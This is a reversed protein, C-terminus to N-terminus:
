QGPKRVELEAISWWLKGPEVGYNRFRIYRAARGELALCIPIRKPDRIAAAFAEGEANGRWAETWEVRDQSTEIRLERPFDVNFEALYMLVSGIRQSAGLDIELEQMEGLQSGATWRTTFDGDALYRLEGQGRNAGVLNYTLREGDRLQPNASASAPLRYLTHTPTSRVLQARPGAAVYASIKGDTDHAKDIAVELPGFSALATL